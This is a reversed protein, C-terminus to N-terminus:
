MIDYDDVKYDINGVVNNHTYLGFTKHMPFRQRGGWKRLGLFLSFLQCRFFDFFEISM